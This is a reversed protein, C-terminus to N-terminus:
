RRAARAAPRAPARRPLVVRYPDDFLHVRACGGPRGRPLVEHDYVVALDLEGDSLRPLLGQMHDDVVTLM